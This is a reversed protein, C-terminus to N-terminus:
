DLGTMPVAMNDILRASGLHAAAFVRTPIDPDFRTIPLLTEATRAEIYDVSAFGADVLVQRAHSSAEEPPTNRSIQLSMEHLAAPLAGAIRRETESLYRNRSSMALGDDERITPAAIIGTPIDLDRALRRVVQLQQWDKEGFIAFDTQAQNLLKTVIQSVGDFHGARAAGCLCETLGDVVVRTAFGSPYMVAVDPAFLLDCGADDLMGADQAEDRPYADLDESPSFQTPNVFLTAVIRDAKTRGFRVLSLHGEHLGGMTPVVASTLGDRRWAGTRARLDQVTRVIQM